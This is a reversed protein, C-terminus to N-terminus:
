LYIITITQPSNNDFGGFQYPNSGRTEDFTLDGMNKYRRITEGTIQYHCSLVDKGDPINFELYYQDEFELELSSENLVLESKSASGVEGIVQWSAQIQYDLAYSNNVVNSSYVGGTETDFVVDRINYPAGSPYLGRYTGICEWFEDTTNFIPQHNTNGAVKSKFINNSSAAIRAFDGLGYSTVSSWLDPSFGDSTDGLYEWAMESEGSLSPEQTNAESLSRFLYEKGGVAHTVYSNLSYEGASWLKLTSSIGTHLIEFSKNFDENFKVMLKDSQDIELYMRLREKLVGDIWGRFVIDGPDDTGQTSDLYINSGNKHFTDGFIVALIQEVYGSSGIISIVNTGNARRLIKALMITNEPVIPTENTPAAVGTQVGYQGNSDGYIVDIRSYIPDPVNLQLNNQTGTHVVNLLRYKFPLSFIALSSSNITFEGPNIIGDPLAQSPPALPTNSDAIYPLNGSSESPVYVYSVVVTNAPITPEAPSSSATGDILSIGGTTDAVVVDIRDFNLNAPTLNMQTQTAKNYIINNIAWSGPSVTVVQGSVSAQLSLVGDIIQIGLDVEAEMIWVGNRKRWFALTSGGQIYLDLDQGSADVPPLTGGTIAFDNITNLIPELLDALQIHAQAVDTPSISDEAVKSGILQNVLAKYADLLQGYEM